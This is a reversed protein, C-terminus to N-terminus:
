QTVYKEVVPWMGVKGDWNGRPRAVACLFMVMLIHRKSQVFQVPADECPTGDQGTLLYVKQGIKKVYFWKEDVHVTDYM